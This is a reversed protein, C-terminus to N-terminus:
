NRPSPTPPTPPLKKKKKAETLKEIQRVVFLLIDNFITKERYFGYLMKM